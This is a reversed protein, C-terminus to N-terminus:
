FTTENVMIVLPSLAEEAEFKSIRKPPISQGTHSFVAGRAMEKKFDRFYSGLELAQGNKLDFRSHLRELELKSASQKLKLRERQAFAEQLLQLYNSRLSEDSVTANTNQNSDNLKLQIENKDELQM